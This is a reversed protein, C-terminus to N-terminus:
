FALDPDDSKFEEFLGKERIFKSAYYYRNWYLTAYERETEYMDKYTDEDGSLELPLQGYGDLIINLASEKMEQSLINLSLYSIVHKEYDFSCSYTSNLKFEKTICVCVGKAVSHNRKVLIKIM